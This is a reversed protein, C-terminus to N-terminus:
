CYSDLYTNQWILYKLLGGYLNLPQDHIECSFFRDNWRESDAENDWAEEMLLVVDRGCREGALGLVGVWDFAGGNCSAM